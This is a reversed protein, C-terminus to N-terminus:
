GVLSPNVRGLRGGRPKFLKPRRIPEDHFASSPLVVNDELFTQGGENLIKFFSAEERKMSFRKVVRVVSEM